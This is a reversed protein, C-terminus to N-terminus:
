AIRGLLALMRGTQGKEARYSYFKVLDSSTCTGDDHVNEPLVGSEIAQQKIDEAFDIEYAPPRICPSLQVVIDAPLSGFHSSMLRIANRTIASETGRKGSHIVGCAGSRSDALYVACCDAVYIGLAIGRINTVLGDCDEFVRTASQSAIVAVHNGHVQGATRLHDPAFGLDAVNKM